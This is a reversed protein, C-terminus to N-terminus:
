WRAFDPSQLALAAFDVDGPNGMIALRLQVTDHAHLLLLLSGLSLRFHLAPPFPGIVQGLGEAIKGNDWSWSGTQVDM